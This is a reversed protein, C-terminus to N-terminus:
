YYESIAPHRSIDKGYHLFQLLHWPVDVYYLKDGQRANNATEGLM